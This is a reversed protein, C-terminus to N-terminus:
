TNKEKLRKEVLSVLYWLDTEDMYTALDILGDTEQDTLGVWKPQALAQRLAKTAAGVQEWSYADLAELAMEAAKRIDSM